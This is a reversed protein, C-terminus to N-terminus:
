SRARRAEAAVGAEIGLRDLMEPDPQAQEAPPVYLTSMPSVDAGPLEALELEQILPGCVPYLSAEYIVVRHDAPYFHALHECLLPLKSLDGNPAFNLEGVVGIQWLILGVSPDAARLRAVFDTAEFSLCGDTSPDVGLDAFLCDQASVAALMRAEFGEARAQRIAAHSPNVFVGPHGYLAFCVSAGTRVRAMVEDVIARYTAKRPTGPEYLVHLATARPNVKQIWTAAVPDAVLYLM